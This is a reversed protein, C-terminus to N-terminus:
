FSPGIFRQGMHASTLSGSFAGALELIHHLEAGLKPDTQAIKDALEQYDRRMKVRDEPTRHEEVFFAAPIDDDQVDSM